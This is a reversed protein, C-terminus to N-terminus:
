RPPSGVRWFMLKGARAAKLNEPWKAPKFSVRVGIADLGKKVARRAPPQAPRAPHRMGDGAAPRRADRALRRRRPRGLRLPRAACARAGPRPRQEREQVGADYGSCHPSIQSQAPMGMNRFVLDIERPVDMALWVARRLAVQHPANGGVVPHEMNFFSLQTTATM